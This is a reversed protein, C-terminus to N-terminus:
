ETSYCICEDAFCRMVSLSKIAGDHESYLVIYASVTYFIVSTLAARAYQRRRFSSWHICDAATIIDCLRNQSPMTSYAHSVAPCASMIISQLM